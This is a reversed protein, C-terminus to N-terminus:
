TMLSPPFRGSQSCEEKAPRSPTACKGWDNNTTSDIHLLRYIASPLVSRADSPTAVPYGPWEVPTYAMRRLPFFESHTKMLITTIKTPPYLIINQEHVDHFPHPIAMRGLPFTAINNCIKFGPNWPSRPYQEHDLRTASRCHWLLTPM